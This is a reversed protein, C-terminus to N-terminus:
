SRTTAITVIQRLYDCLRDRDCTFLPRCFLWQHVHTNSLITNLDGEHFKTLTNSTATSSVHSILAARLDESTKEAIRSEFRNMMLSLKAQELNDELDDDSDNESIKSAPEEIDDQKTEKTKNSSNSISLSDQLRRIREGITTTQSLCADFWQNRAYYAFVTCIQTIDMGRDDTEMMDTQQLCDGSHTSTITECLTEDKAVISQLYAEAHTLLERIERITQHLRFGAAVHQQLSWRLHCASAETALYDSKSSTMLKKLQKAASKMLVHTVDSKNKTDKQKVESQELKSTHPESNYTELQLRIFDSRTTFVVGLQKYKEITEQIVTQKNMEHSLM